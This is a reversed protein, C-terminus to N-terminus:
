SGTKSPTTAAGGGTGGTKATSKSDGCGVTAGLALIAILAFLKKM